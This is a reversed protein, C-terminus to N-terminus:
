DSVEIDVFATMGWRIGEPVSDLAVIVTYNVGAGEGAKPAIEELTGEVEVNPLADFTVIASDGVALRAVDIENLDTTEVRLSALNGLLVLAQGPGVFEHADVSVSSITGDFPARLVAQEIRADAADVSAQAQTVEAEAVAIDEAFPQALLLDLRAQAAAAQANALGIQADAIRVAEPTPGDLLDTLTAQAAALNQEALELQYALTEGQAAPHYPGPEIGSLNASELSAFAAVLQDRQMNAQEIQAYADELQADTVDDYLAEKRAAAAATRAYAASLQGEAADIEEETPGAKTKALNAEASALGAEAATLAAELDTTDLRAIVDGAQVEDGVAVLLDEIEGGLTFSLTAWQEPLVEGTASIVPTTDQVALDLAATDAAAGEEEAAAGPQCGALLLALM